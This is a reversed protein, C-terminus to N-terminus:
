FFTCQDRVFFNVWRFENEVGPKEAAYLIRKLENTHFSSKNRGLAVKIKKLCLPDAGAFILRDIFNKKPCQEKFITLFRRSSIIKEKNERYVSSSHFTIQM